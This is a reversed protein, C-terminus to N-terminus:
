GYTLSVPPMWQSRKIISYPGCLVVSVPAPDIPNAVGSGQYYRLIFYMVGFGMLCCIGIKRKLKIRVNWIMLIPLGAFVFDSVVSIVTSFPKKTHM